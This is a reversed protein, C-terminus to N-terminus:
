ACGQRELWGVAGNNKNLRIGDENSRLTGRVSVGEIYNFKLM